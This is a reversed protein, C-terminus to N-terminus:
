LPFLFKLNVYAKLRVTDTSPLFTRVNAKNLTSSITAILDAGVEQYETVKAHSPTLTDSAVMKENRKQQHPLDEM